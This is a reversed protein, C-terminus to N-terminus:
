HRLLDRLELVLKLVLVLIALTYRLVRVPDRPLIRRFTRHMAM